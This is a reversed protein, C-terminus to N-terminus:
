RASIILWRLVTWHPLLLSQIRNCRREQHAGFSRVARRTRAQWVRGLLLM